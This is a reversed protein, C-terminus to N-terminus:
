WDACVEQCLRCELKFGEEASIISLGTVLREISEGQIQQMIGLETELQTAWFKYMEGYQRSDRWNRMFIHAENTLKSQGLISVLEDQFLVIVLDKM